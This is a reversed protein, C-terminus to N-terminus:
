RNNHKKYIRDLRERAGSQWLRTLHFDLRACPYKKCQGCNDVKKKIACLRMECMDCGKLIKKGIQKCEYCEIEDLTLTRGPM